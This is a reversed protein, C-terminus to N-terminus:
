QEIQAKSLPVGKYELEDLVQKYIASSPKYHGSLKDIYIIEGDVVTVMGAGSVKEGGFFSSHHVRKGQLIFKRIDQAGLVYFQGKTDMVYMAREVNLHSGTRDLLKGKSDISVKLLEREEKSFYVVAKPFVGPGLHEGIYKKDMSITGYSHWKDSLQRLRGVYPALVPVSAFAVSVGCNLKSAHQLASKSLLNPNCSLSASVHIPEDFCTNKIQHLQTGYAVASMGLSLAGRLTNVAVAPGAGLGATAGVLAMSSLVSATKPGSKYNANLRCLLKKDLKDKSGVSQILQNVQGSQVFAIKDTRDLEYTGDKKKKEKFYDGAKKLIPALDQVENSFVRQFSREDIAGKSLALQLIKKQVAPYTGLPLNGIVSQIGYNLAAIDRGVQQAASRKNMEVVTRDLPDNSLVMSAKLEEKSRKEKAMQLLTDRIGKFIEYANKDVSNRYSPDKQYKELLTNQCQTNADSRKALEQFVLHESYDEMVKTGLSLIVKLSPDQPRDLCSSLYLLEEKSTEDCAWHNGFFGEIKTALSVEGYANTLLLLTLLLSKFM